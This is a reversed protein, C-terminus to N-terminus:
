KGVPKEADRKAAEKEVYEVARLRQRDIFTKGASGASANDAVQHM